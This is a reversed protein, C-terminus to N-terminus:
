TADACNRPPLHKKRRMTTRAWSRPRSVLALHTHRPRKLGSRKPDLDLDMTQDHESPDFDDDLEAPGLISDQEASTACVLLVAFELNYLQGRQGNSRPNASTQTQNGEHM